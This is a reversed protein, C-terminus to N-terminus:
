GSSDERKGDEKFYVEKLRSWVRKGRRAFIENAQSTIERSQAELQDDLPLARGEKKYRWLLLSRAIKTEARRAFRKVSRKIEEAM